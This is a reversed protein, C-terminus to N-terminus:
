SFDWLIRDNEKVKYASCAKAAKDGNVFYTWGVGDTKERLGSIAAVYNGMVSKRYDISIDNQGCVALLVDFVSQGKQAKVENSEFIINDNNKITLTVDFQAPQESSSDMELNKQGCAGLCILTLLFIILLLKKRM